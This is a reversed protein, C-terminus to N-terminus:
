CDGCKSYSLEKKEEKLGLRDGPRRNRWPGRDLWAQLKGGGQWSEGRVASEVGDM